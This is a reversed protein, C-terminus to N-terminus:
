IKENRYKKEWLICSKVIKDLNNYKPRWNIFKKIKYNDSIVKVMDGNRKPFKFIKLNNNAYKKFENIVNNVSIGQGYGCNLIKSVNLKDIKKLVKFHINAIDSVHIYDRVCTGDNTKYNTGYIKFIPKKKLVELSLNKFLQDGKNIQGLKGSSSAGAVNFYRLIGFNLKNKTCFKKILQECKIKTKGYVSTPKIQTNENVKSFGDKYVACTSSFIINRVKTNKIANLLKKTGTVNIRKYKDPKKESEGVSLVAALHIVSDINNEIIMKNIKKTNLINIKNFKSKANVLKKFGTSLDDVIFVKMKSKILLESTHSGIYGAGGTILINKVM